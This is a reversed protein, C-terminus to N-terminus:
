TRHLLEGVVHLLNCLEGAEAAGRNLSTVQPDHLVAPPEEDSPCTEQEEQAVKLGSLLLSRVVELKRGAVRSLEVIM